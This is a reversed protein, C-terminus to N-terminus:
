WAFITSNHLITIKQFSESLHIPVCCRNLGPLVTGRFLVAHLKRSSSSKGARYLVKAFYPCHIEISCCFLRQKMSKSRFHKPFKICRRSQCFWSSDSIILGSRCGNQADEGSGGGGCATLLALAMVGVLLLAAFKKLKKM